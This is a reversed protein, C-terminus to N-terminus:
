AELFRILRAVTAKPRERMARPTVSDLDWGAARIDGEREVDEDQILYNGHAELGKMEIAKRRLPWAFDVTWTQTGNRVKIEFQLEPREIGHADLAAYFDFLFDAEKDSGPGRRTGAYLEAVSLLKRRGKMGAGYRQVHLVIKRPTTIRRRWAATVLRHLTRTSVKPAVSLLTEEVCEVPIGDIVSTPVTRRSRHATVDDAHLTTRHAVTVHVAGPQFNGLDRLRLASFDSARATSGGALVAAHIVEQWTLEGAGVLYVDDHIRRLTGNHCRRFVAKKSARVSRLEQATVLRRGLQEVLESIRLDLPSEVDPM